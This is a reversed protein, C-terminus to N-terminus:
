DEYSKNNLSGYKDNYYKDSPKGETRLCQVWGTDYSDMIMQREIELMKVAKRIFVKQTPHNNKIWDIYLELSTKAM